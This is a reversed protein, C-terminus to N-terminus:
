LRYVKFSYTLFFGIVYCYLHLLGNINPILMMLLLIPLATKMSELLKGTKGWMMGFMAFLMGSMGVTPASVYMPLFSGAVGVAYSGIMDFKNKIGWLVFLNCLCHFINAHCFIYTFHYLINGGSSFGANGCLFYFSFCLVSLLLKKYFGQKITAKIEAARVM